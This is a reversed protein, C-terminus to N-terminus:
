LQAKTRVKVANAIGVDVENRHRSWYIARAAGVQRRQYLRTFRQTPHQFIPIDHAILRRYIWPTGLLYANRNLLAHRTQLEILIEVSAVAWFSDIGAVLVM